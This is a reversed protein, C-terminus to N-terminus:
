KIEYVNKLGSVTCLSNYYTGQFKYEYPDGENNM